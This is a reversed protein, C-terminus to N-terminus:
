AFSNSDSYSLSLENGTKIRRVPKEDIDKQLQEFCLLCSVAQNM